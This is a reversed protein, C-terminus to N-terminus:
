NTHTKESMHTILSKVAPENLLVKLAGVDELFLTMKKGSLRFPVVSKLGKKSDSFVNVLLLVYDDDRIAGCIEYSSSGTFIANVESYLEETSYERMAAIRRDDESYWDHLSIANLEKADIILKNLTTEYSLRDASNIESLDEYRIIVSAMVSSAPNLIEDIDYIIDYEVDKFNRVGIVQVAGYGGGSISDVFEKMRDSRSIGSLQYNVYHGRGVTSLFGENEWGIALKYRGSEHVAYQVMPFPTAEQGVMNFRYRYVSGLKVCGVFSIDNYKMLAAPYAHINSFRERVLDHQSRLYLACLADIDGMKRALFHAYILNEPTGDSNSFSSGLSDNTGYSKSFLYTYIGSKSRAMCPSPSLALEGVSGFLNAALGIGIVVITVIQRNM